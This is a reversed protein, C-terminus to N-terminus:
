PEDTNEKPTLIVVWPTRDDWNKRHPNLASRGWGLAKVLAPDLPPPKPRKVFRGKADRPPLTRM